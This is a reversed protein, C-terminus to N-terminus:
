AAEARLNVVVCSRPNAEVQLNTMAGVEVIGDATASFAPGIHDHFILEGDNLGTVLLTAKSYRSLDVRPGLGGGIKITIEIM